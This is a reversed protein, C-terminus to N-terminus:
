ENAGLRSRGKELWCGVLLGAGIAIPIIGAAGFVLVEREHVITAVVLSFLGLGVGFVVLTLGGIRLASAYRHLGVHLSHDPQSATPLPLGKAMAALREETQLKRIRWSTGSVIAVIGLVMVCTTIPIIFPTCFVNQYM